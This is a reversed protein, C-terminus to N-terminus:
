GSTGDDGSTTPKREEGQAEREAVREADLARLERYIEITQEHSSLADWVHEGIRKRAREVAIRFDDPM